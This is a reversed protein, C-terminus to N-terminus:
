RRTKTQGDKSKSAKHGRDEPEKEHRSRKRGEDKDKEKRLAEKDTDKRLDEKDKEKAASAVHKRPPTVPRSGSSMPPEWRMAKVEPHLDDEDADLDEVEGRKYRRDRDEEKRKTGFAEPSTKTPM